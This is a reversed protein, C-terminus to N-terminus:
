AGLTKRLTPPPNNPESRAFSRRPSPTSGGSPPVTRYPCPPLADTSGSVRAADHHRPRLRDIVNRAASEARAPPSAPMPSKEEHTSATTQEEQAVRAGVAHGELVKRRFGLLRM